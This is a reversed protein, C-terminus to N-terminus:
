SVGSIDVIAPSEEITTSELTSSRGSPLTIQDIPHRMKKVEISNILINTVHFPDNMYSPREFLRIIPIYTLLDRQGRLLTNTDGTDELM